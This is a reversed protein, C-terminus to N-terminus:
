PIAGGLGLSWFANLVKALMDGPTMTPDAALSATLAAMHASVAIGFVPIAVSAGLVALAAGLVGAAGVTCLTNQSDAMNLDQTNTTLWRRKVYCEGLNNTDFAVELGHPNAVNLAGLAPPPDPLVGLLPTLFTNAALGDRLKSTLVTRAIKTTWEALRFAPQVRLVYSYIVGFRGFGVLLANFVDDNRLIETDPCSLAKALAFDDTIPQTAREIWIERGNMTVLHMAMVMEALPGHELDGGHTSTSIAGALGQGNSGGLTPLALNLADLALNVDSITAGAEVHFLFDTGAMQKASWASNLASNTVATLTKKLGALSIMWDPSYAIDEFAWGSGQVHVKHGQSSALQIRNVLDPLTAPEFLSNVPGSFHGSWNQWSIHDREGGTYTQSSCSLIVELSPLSYSRM